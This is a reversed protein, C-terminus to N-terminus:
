SYAYGFQVHCSHCIGPVTKNYGCTTHAGGADNCFVNHDDDPLGCLRFVRKEAGGFINCIPEYVRDNGGYPSECVNGYAYVM